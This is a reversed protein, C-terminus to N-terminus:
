RTRWYDVARDLSQEFTLAPRWGVEDQLRRARTELRDPEHMPVAGYRVLDGRGTRAAIGAIVERVPRATGSAVNVVGSVTSTLLAVLAGAVDEVHLFDRQQRGHTCAAERGALLARTVTPVLRSPHEDNGFLFFIRAWAVSFGPGALARVQRGADLKARGYPTAPAEAAVSEDLSPQSWDYEACSGVGVFRRAGAASAAGALAITASAWRPNDPSQWYVGPTAEWALHLVAEPGTRAVLAAPAAPDLLDAERGVGVVDHGQARLLPVVHRGIYGSAGTVVIRVTPLTDSRQARGTRTRGTATM